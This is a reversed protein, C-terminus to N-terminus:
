YSPCVCLLRVYAPGVEESSAKSGGPKACMVFIMSLSPEMGLVGTGDKGRGKDLSKPAKAEGDPVLAVLIDMPGGGGFSFCELECFEVVLDGFSEVVGM